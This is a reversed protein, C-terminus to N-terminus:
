QLYGLARMRSKTQEDLTGTAPPHAGRGLRQVLQDLTHRLRRVQVDPLGPRTEGPDAALDYTETGGSTVDILKDTGDIIARDHRKRPGVFGITQTQESFAIRRAFLNPAGQHVLALLWRLPPRARRMVWRLSRGEFAPPAAVGVMDLITPGIDVLSVVERVDVHQQQGSIWILLPVHIVEGYLSSGHQMRGHEMFEDGHDATIVVIADQLFGRQQLAEFLEKLRGDLSMVEADYLDQVVALAEEGPQTWQDRPRQRLEALVTRAREPDGHRSLMRELLDAPPAYPYHPEMYQLYLFAPRPAGSSAFTDLWALSERNLREAREKIEMNQWPDLAPDREEGFKGHLVLYQEFGQGYGLRKPILPNATFGATAYGRQQLVEPFTVEGDPLISGFNDVGHQSQYRSTLLSAVSPNTWSSQAYANWFVTSHAAVVDLFPTLRRAGGYWGVRDARLTDIVVCLINPTAARQCAPFWSAALLPLILTRIRGGRVPERL